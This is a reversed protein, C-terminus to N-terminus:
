YNEEEIWDRNFKEIIIDQDTLKVNPIKKWSYGSGTEYVNAPIDVVYAETDSYVISFAHDDGPQGGDIISVDLQGLINQIAYNIADCAGGHGFEVDGSDDVNWEDLIKQAAVLIDPILAKIQQKLSLHALVNKLKYYVSEVIPQDPFKEILKLQLMRSYKGACKKSCFPGAKKKRSQDRIASPLREFEENCWACNFKLPKSRRTDLRSHEARPLIQLNSIDNNNIDGDIHDITDKDPDLQKGLHVEMLWKPYSVTRRKNNRDVVIVIQRGDKRVYPGFIKFNDAYGM